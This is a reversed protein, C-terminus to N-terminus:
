AIFVNVTSGTSMRHELKVTSAAIIVAHRSNRKANEKSITNINKMHSYVGTLCM